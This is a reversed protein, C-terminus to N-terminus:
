LIYLKPTPVADVILSLIHKNVQDWLGAKKAEEVDVKNGPIVVTREEGM